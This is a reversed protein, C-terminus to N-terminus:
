ERVSIRQAEGFIEFALAVAEEFVGARVADAEEDTVSAGTSEYIALVADDYAWEIPALLDMAEKVAPAATRLLDAARQVRGMAEPTLVHERITDTYVSM